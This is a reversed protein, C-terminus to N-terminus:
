TMGRLRTQIVQLYDNENTERVFCDNLSALLEGYRRKGDYFMMHQGVSSSHMTQYFNEELLSQAEAANKLETRYPLLM